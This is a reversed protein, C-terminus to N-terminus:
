EDQTPVYKHKKEWDWSASPFAGTIGELAVRPASVLKDADSGCTPCTTVKCYETLKDFTEKCEQCQFSYLIKM